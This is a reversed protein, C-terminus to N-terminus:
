VIKLRRPVYYAIVLVPIIVVVRVIVLEIVSMRPQICTQGRWRYKCKSFLLIDGERSFEGTDNVTVNVWDDNLLCWDEDGQSSRSEAYGIPCRPM